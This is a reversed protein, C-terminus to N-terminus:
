DNQIHHKYPSFVGSKSDSATLAHHIVCIQEAIKSDMWTSCQRYTSNMYTSVETQIYKMKKLDAISNLICLNRWSIWTGPSTKNDVIKASNKLNFQKREVYIQPKLSHKSRVRINDSRCRKRLVCIALSRLRFFHNQLSRFLCINIPWITHATISLFFSLLHSLFLSICVFWFFSKEPDRFTILTHYQTQKNIENKLHPAYALLCTCMENISLHQNSACM